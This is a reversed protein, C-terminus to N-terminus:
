RMDRGTSNIHRSVRLRRGLRHLCGIGQRELRRWVSLLNAGVRRRRAIEPVSTGPHCTEEIMSRKEAVAYKRRPGNRRELKDTMGTELSCGM